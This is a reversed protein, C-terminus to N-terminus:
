LAHEAFRDLADALETPSVDTTLVERQSEDMLVIAPFKDVKLARLKEDIAPTADTADFRATVYARAMKEVDPSALVDRDLATCRPSWSACVVLLVPRNAARARTALEDSWSEFTIAPAETETPRTGEVAVEVVDEGTSRRGLDIEVPPAAHACASAAIAVSAFLYQKSSRM